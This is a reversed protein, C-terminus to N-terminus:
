VVGCAIPCFSRVKNKGCLGADAASQCTRKVKQVKFKSSQVKSQVKVQVKAQCYKIVVMGWEMVMGDVVWWM